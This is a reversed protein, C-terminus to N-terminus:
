LVVDFDDDTEEGLLKQHINLLSLIKGVTSVSAGMQSDSRVM